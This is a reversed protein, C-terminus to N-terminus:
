IRTRGGVSFVPGYPRGLPDLLGQVLGDLTQLLGSLQASARTIRLGAYPGATEFLLARPAPLTVSAVDTANRYFLVAATRVDSDPPTAPPAPIALPWIITVEYLVADSLTACASALALAYASAGAESTDRPYVRMQAKGGNNDRFRFRIYPRVAM